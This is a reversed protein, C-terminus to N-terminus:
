KKDIAELKAKMFDIEKQQSSIIQKALDRIEPDELDAQEVMLIAAAHHPVMSKLFQRDSVATQQRIALYSGALLLIGSVLIITNYKNNTYMGRMVLLEILIMAATMLTAMYIQNVNPIVNEFRDVMAYMLAYMAAFSLLIMVLFKKYHHMQQHMGSKHHNEM